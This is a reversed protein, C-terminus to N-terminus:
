TERGPRVPVRIVFRTGHDHELDLRGAHAAVLDRAITLGLGMGQPFRRGRPGRYFPQFIRERDEPTIGPGTDAVCIWLTGDDVGSSISVSEGAPTFKIANSVLNGVAQAMRDPDIQVAPLSTPVQADWRLGKRLAAERWPALLPPLWEGVLVPRRDLELEGLLRDHLRALDELLRSLRSLEDSIGALLEVRLAPDKDAGGSLAEIAARLAGLPRGLEHVLNVLLHHRAEELGRLREVLSNFARVLRGIEEIHPEPLASWQQGQALEQVSATVQQIPRELNLALVWGIASGVLVGGALIEAILYRRRFFEDLVTEARLTVRILGATGGRVSAVPALVDVIEADPHRSRVTRVDIEGRLAAAMGPHSLRQGVRSQDDPDTAAIIRGDRGILMLRDDLHPAFSAVFARAEIPDTWLSPRSRAMEALLTAEGTLEDILNPLVVHEEMVYILALGMLPVVILLPLVHSLIFRGRLTRLIM